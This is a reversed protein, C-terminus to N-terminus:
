DLELEEEQQFERRKSAVTQCCQLLNQSFKLQGTKLPSSNNRMKEVWTNISRQDIFEIQNPGKNIDIYGEKTIVNKKINMVQDSDQMIKSVITYMRNLSLIPNIIKKKQDGNLETWYRESETQYINKKTSELIVLCWVDTPSILLIDFQIVAKPYMLTPKYLVLYNDPFTKCLWKLTSDKRYNPDLTSKELITSSAWRLQFHFLEQYFTQKLEDLTKLQTLDTKVTPLDASSLLDKKGKLFPLHNFISEKKKGSLLPPTQETILSSSWALRLREWREKKLRSFHSQYRFIDYQYRSM